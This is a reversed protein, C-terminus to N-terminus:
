KPILVFARPGVQDPRFGYGVIWGRDSIDSPRLRTWGAARVEPIQALMTLVGNDYLFGDDDILGVVAGRNNIAAASSVTGHEFLRRMTGDWIYARPIRAADEAWGVIVGHENVDNAYSLKGGFTGLDSMVGDKFMFAHAVTGDGPLESLGVVIGKDNIAYGISHAGGLTGLDTLVGERWLFAHNQTGTWMMGTVADFKNIDFPIGFVQMDVWQGDKWLFPRDGSGNVVITGRENISMAQSFDFIPAGLDQLAGNQWLFAHFPEAIQGPVRKTSYGVVDGRNNVATAVAGTSGLAGLDYVTWARPPAAYALTALALLAFALVSRISKMAPFPHPSSLGM